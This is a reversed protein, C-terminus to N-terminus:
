RHHSGAATLRAVTGADIGALAGWRPFDRRCIVWVPLPLRVRKGKQDYRDDGPKLGKDEGREAVADSWVDADFDEIILGDGGFKGKLVMRESSRKGDSIYDAREIVGEAFVCSAQDKIYAGLPSLALEKYFMRSMWVTMVGGGAGTGFLPWFADAPLTGGPQLRSWVAWTALCLLGAGVLGCGTVAVWLGVKDRWYVRKIRAVDRLEADDAFSFLEFSRHM